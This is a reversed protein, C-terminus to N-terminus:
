ALAKAAARLHDVLGLLSVFAPGAQGATLTGQERAQSMRALAQTWEAHGQAFAELAAKATEARPLGSLERLTMAEARLPGAADALARVLQEERLSLNAYAARLRLAQNLLEQRVRRLQAERPVALGAFPDEGFLVRHRRAVDAFRVAFAEAAEPVETQLLFMVQAGLEARAERLAQRLGDVKEASFRSLVFVLNVDSTSRLRGEAASGYLVAAVLEPGLAERAAAVFRTLAAEVDAPLPPPSTM